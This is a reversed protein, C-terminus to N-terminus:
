KMSFLLQSVELNGNMTYQKGMQVEVDEGPAGMLEGPFIQTPLDLYDNMGAKVTLKPLGHSIAENVRSKSIREDNTGKKILHSNELSHKIIDDLEMARQAYVGHCLLIFGIAVNIQRKLVKM